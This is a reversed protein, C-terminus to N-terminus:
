ARARHARPRQRRRRAAREVPLGPLAGRRGRHVHHAHQRRDHHPQQRLDLVPQRAASPRRALSGRRRRRGDPLRRRLDRLHRYDFIPFDPQNYRSALWKQAMAMGVSTAIGQGLPGTTTEVGSVLHYEPHGPAHSGIQRFHKIDDLTVSPQGQVEYEPNVAKVGTLHLLSWLLMSAHGNSLVFRDRNAWIPDAPDFSMVRNWLVYAMPALGMPAGPHGSSAAQVADISLTRITNICLTAIDQNRPFDTMATGRYDHLGAAAADAVILARDGTVRGAPIHPRRRAARRACPGERRRHGRVDRLAVPQPGSLHADHAPPGHVAPDAVRRSLGREARSREPVLSATHGDPGLGLHVLDLVPPTGAITALTQAYRAAAAALDTRKSRCRTCTTPRCRRRADLLSERIHTLNRDPDGPPAVREDVQFLHVNTWDVNEAALARLMQWPTHGGSVAFKFRGRAAIAVACQAAIFRAAAQAVADADALIDTQM